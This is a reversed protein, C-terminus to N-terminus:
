RSQERRTSTPYYALEVQSHKWAVAGELQQETGAQQLSAQHGALSWLLQVEPTDSAAQRLGPQLRASQQGARDRLDPIQPADQQQNEPGRRHSGLGIM